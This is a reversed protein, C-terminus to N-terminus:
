STAPSSSCCYQTPIIEFRRYGFTRKDDPPRRAIHVAALAIALAAPDTFMHAANALLALSDFVYAGVLEAVLFLTTLALVIGLSKTSAGATHDHGDDDHAEAM